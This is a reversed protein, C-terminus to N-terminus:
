ILFVSILIHRPVGRDPPAHQGPLWIQPSRIAPRPQFRSVPLWAPSYEKGYQESVSVFSVPANAIDSHGLCHACSTVPGDLKNDVAEEGRAAPSFQPSADEDIMTENMAAHDMSTDAMALQDESMADMSLGPMSMGHEHESAISEHSSSSARHTTGNVLCCERGLAHPCFAAALVHGFSSLMLLLALTTPFLRKM